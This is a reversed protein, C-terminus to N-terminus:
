RPQAGGAVGLVDAGDFSGDFEHIATGGADVLVATPQGTVGYHQWLRYREDFVM